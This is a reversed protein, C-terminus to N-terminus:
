CKATFVVLSGVEIKNSAQTYALFENQKSGANNVGPFSYHEIIYELFWHPGIFNSDIDLDSVSSVNLM